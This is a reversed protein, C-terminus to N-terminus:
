TLEEITIAGLRVAESVMEDGTNAHEITFTPSVTGVISGYRRGYIFPIDGSASRQTYPLYLVPTGDAAWRQVLAALTSAMEGRSYAPAGGNWAAIYDPNSAAAIGINASGHVPDLRDISAQWTLSVVRSSPAAKAAWRQGNDAAFTRATARYEHTTDKGHADGLVVAPGLLFKLDSKAGPVDSYGAIGFRLRFGRITAPPALTMVVRPPCFRWSVSGSDESGDAAIRVKASKFTQATNNGLVGATNGLIERANGSADVAFGGVLEDEELFPGSGSSLASSAILWEGKRTYTKANVYTYIRNWAGWASGDHWAYDFAQLRADLVFAWLPSIRDIAENTDGFQVAIIETAMAASRWRQRPSPYDATWFMQDPAYVGGIPMSFWEEGVVAPGGSAALSVGNHVYRPRGGFTRGIPQEDIPSSLYGVGFSAPALDTKAISFRWLKVSAAAAGDGQARIEYYLSAGVISTLTVPEFTNWVRPEVDNRPRWAAVASVGVHTVLIEIEGTDVAHPGSLSAGTLGNFIEIFGPTAVVNVASEGAAGVRTHSRISLRGSDIQAGVVCAAESQNDAQPYQWRIYDAATIGTSAAVWYGNANNTASGGAGGTAQSYVNIPSGAHPTWDRAFAARGFFFNNESGAFRPLSIPGTSGGLHLGILAAGDARRAVGYLRDRYGTIALERPGAALGTFAYGAIAWTLGDDRSFMLACADFAALGTPNPVTAYITGDDTSAVCVSDGSSGGGTPLTFAATLTAISAFADGLRYIAYDGAGGEDIAVIFSGGASGLGVAAPNLASFEGVFDFRIGDASAFQQTGVTMLYQGGSRAIRIRGAAGGSEDIGVSLAQGSALTWSALDSLDATDAADWICIQAIESALDHILHYLRVRGGGAAVLAPYAYKSAATDTPPAVIQDFAIGSADGKPRYGVYVYSSGGSADEYAIAINGNPLGAVAVHTQDNTDTSVSGSVVEAHSISSPPDWGIWVDGGAEDQVGAAKWRAEFGLDPYGARSAQLSIFRDIQPVDLAGIPAWTIASPAEGTPEPATMRAGDVTVGSIEDSWIRIGPMCAAFIPLSSPQSYESGM